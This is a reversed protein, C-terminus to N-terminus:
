FRLKKAFYSVISGSGAVSSGRWVQEYVDMIPLDLKIVNGAVLLEMAFDDELLGPLDLDQCIKNKVDRM